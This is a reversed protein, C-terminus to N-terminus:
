LRFDETVELEIKDGKNIVVAQPATVNGVVAGAIAGGIVQEATIGRQGLIQGLVVGGAAGIAVDTAIAGIDTQNPDKTDAIKGSRALFNYTRGNVIMRSAVFQGGGEVPVIEGEITSDAPIVVQGNRNRIPEVLNLSLKRTEGTQIVQRDKGNYLSLLKQGTQLFTQDISLRCGTPGCGGPTPSQRRFLQAVSHRSELRSPAESRTAAVTVAGQSLLLAAVGVTIGGVNRLSSGSCQVTSRLM